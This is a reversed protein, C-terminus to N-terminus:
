PKDPAPRARLLEAVGFLLLLQGAVVELSALVRIGNDQPHIDGYGVTSLTALSFHLADSYGIRMPGGAGSFLPEMSLGDAIRYAAAFIVVLLAYLLLFAAAPVVLHRLRRSIEAMLLSVDALLRVVDRAKAPADEPALMTETLDLVDEGEPAASAPTEDDLIRRISALIDDMQPGGATPTGPKPQNTDGM